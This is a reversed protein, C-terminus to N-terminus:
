IELNRTVPSTFNSVIPREYSSRPVAKLQFFLTLKKQRRWWSGESLREYNTDKNKRLTFAVQSIKRILYRLWLEKRDHLRLEVSIRREGNEGIVKKSIAAHLFPM